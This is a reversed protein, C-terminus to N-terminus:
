GKPAAFRGWCPIKSLKAKQLCGNQIYQIYTTYIEYIIEMGEGSEMGGTILELHLTSSKALVSLPMFYVYGYSKQIM